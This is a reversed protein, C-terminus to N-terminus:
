CVVTPLLGLIKPREGLESVRLRIRERPRVGKAKLAQLRTIAAFLLWHSIQDVRRLAIPVLAASNHYEMHQLIVQRMQRARETASPHTFSMTEGKQDFVEYCVDLTEISKLFIYPGVVTFIDSLELRIATQTCIVAGLADAAFEDDKSYVQAALDDFGEVALEQTEISSLHGLHLHALEHAIPFMTLANVLSLVLPLAHSSPPWPESARTTGQLVASSFLDAARRQIMESRVNRIIAKSQLNVQGDIVNRHTLCEAFIKAISNCFVTLDSDIFIHYYIDDWSNTACLANVQGSALSSVLLKRGGTGMSASGMTTVLQDLLNDSVARVDPEDLDSIKVMVPREFMLAAQAEGLGAEMAIRTLQERYAPDMGANGRNRAVVGVLKEAQRLQISHAWDIAAQLDADAIDPQNAM